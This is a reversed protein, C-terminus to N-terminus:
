SASSPPPSGQCQQASGLHTAQGPACRAPWPHEAGTAEEQHGDEQGRVAQTRPASDGCPVHGPLLYLNTPVLRM